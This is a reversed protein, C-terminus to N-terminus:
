KIGNDDRHLSAMPIIPLARPNDDPTACLGVSAKYASGKGAAQQAPSQYYALTALQGGSRQTVRGVASENVSHEIGTLSLTELDQELAKLCLFARCRHARDGPVRNFAQLNNIHTLLSNYNRKKMDEVLDQCVQLWFSVSTFVSESILFYTVFARVIPTEGNFQFHVAAVISLYDGPPTTGPPLSNGDAPVASIIFCFCDSVLRWGIGGSFSRNPIIPRTDSFQMDTQLSIRKLQNRLTAFRVYGSSANSSEARLSCVVDM